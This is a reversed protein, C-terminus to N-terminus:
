EGTRLPAPAPQLKGRTAKGHLVGKSDFWIRDICIIRDWGRSADTKQHYVMWLKGDADETVSCHGPGFVGKGKKMIPNGPYKVFPGLPSKSTAYGIAYYETNAGGGSYLLYYIGKHRLMWPAETIARHNKEWQETPHLVAVPRGKKLVPSEMPQVYIRFAPFRVYYLYYKGDDDMFMDADIAHNVLTGLDTFPGEPSGAVAVGVRRDVTYYLYFKRDPPNYIVDPAWAGGESTHFVEPGKKWRVLDSSIYVDYGHNDGTPYLYYRGDHRIVDPDGIGVTGMFPSSFTEALVPNAYTSGATATLPLSGCLICFLVSSIVRM